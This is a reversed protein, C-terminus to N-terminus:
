DEMKNPNYAREIRELATGISCGSQQCMEVIKQEVSAYGEKTSKMHCIYPWSLRDCSDLEIAILEKLEKVQDNIGM